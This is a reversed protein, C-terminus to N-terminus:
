LELTGRGVRVARGGVTAAVLEPGRLVAGVHITSPRGMEVGQEIVWGEALREPTAHGALYGCASAAASGTAPDEGIGLGPAFMRARWDRADVRQAPDVPALVYLEPADAFSM